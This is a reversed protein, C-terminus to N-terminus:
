GTDGPREQMALLIAAVTIGISIAALMEILLILGGALPLPLQLFGTIPTTAIALLLFGGFGLALLLRLLPLGLQGAAPRGSYWLLVGAAALVVGSQFAGGPEFKGLWLFYGAVLVMVPTLAAVLWYLVLGPRDEAPPALAADRRLVWVGLMGVLLVGLELWTDYARFNLLVATVAHDVGSEPMRELVPGTLGGPARPLGLVTGALIAALFATAVGTIANTHRSSPPM